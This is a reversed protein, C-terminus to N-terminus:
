RRARAQRSDTRDRFSTYEPRPSPLMVVFSRAIAFFMRHATRGFGMVRRAQRRHRSFSRLGPSPNTLTGGAVFKGPFTRVCEVWAAIARRSTFKLETVFSAGRLSTPCIIPDPKQRRRQAVEQGAQERTFEPRVGGVAPRSQIQLDCDQWGDRAHQQDDACLRDLTPHFAHFSSSDPPPVGSKAALM